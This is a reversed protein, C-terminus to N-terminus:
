LCEVAAHGIRGKATCHALLVEAFLLDDPSTIKLNWVSGPIIQVPRSLCEVLSAEDTGAINLREAHELAEQLIERRFAQPTQARWLGRRDLTEVILGEASARKVTDLEPIAVIASGKLAAVDISAQILAPSVFPRAGDHVVVIDVNEGVRRFGAGVSGQRTEAGPVIQCVKRFRGRGIVEQRCYEERGPPVIVVVRQVGPTEEFRTLTHALLPKRGLQLFQKELGDGMRRGMGAAAILATVNM